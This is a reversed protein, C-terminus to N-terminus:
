DSCLLVVTAEILDKTIYIIIVMLDLVDILDRIM